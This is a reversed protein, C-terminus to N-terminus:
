SPWRSNKSDRFALIPNIGQRIIFYLFAVFLGALHTLHAVGGQLGFFGSFLEIGGYLLVMHTSRLPIIGFLYIMSRPFYIAYALLMGFLAGSAGMLFVRYAGTFWYIGLSILGSFVGVIMYFFLFEWSGMREELPPGFFFLGLMNFLIHNMGGHIFMYTIPTWYFHNQMFLVPNLALYYPLRAFLTTLFYLGLNIAILVFTIHLNM